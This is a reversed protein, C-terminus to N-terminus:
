VDGDGLRDVAVLDAVASAEESVVAEVVLAV